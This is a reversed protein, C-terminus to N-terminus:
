LGQAHQSRARRHPRVASTDEHTTGPIKPPFRRSGPRSRHRGPTGSPSEAPASPRSVARDEFSRNRTARAGLTTGSRGRAARAPRVISAGRTTTPQAARRVRRQGLGDARHRLRRPVRLRARRHTPTPRRAAAQVMQTSSSTPASCRAPSTPASTSTTKPKRSYALVHRLVDRGLDPLGPDPADRLRGPRDGGALM